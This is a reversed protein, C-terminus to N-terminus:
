KILILFFFSTEQSYTGSLSYRLKLNLKSHHNKENRPPINPGNEYRTEIAGYATQDSPKTKPTTNKQNPEKSAEKVSSIGMTQVLM